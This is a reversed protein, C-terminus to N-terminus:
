PRSREGRPGRPDSFSFKWDLDLDTVARPSTEATVVSPTVAAVLLCVAKCGM